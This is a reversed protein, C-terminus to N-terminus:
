MLGLLKVNPKEEAVSALYAVLKNIWELNEYASAASTLFILGRCADFTNCNLAGSGTLLIADYKDVSDPYEMKHVVDFDDVTYEVSPDPLSKRLLERFITRYDGDQAVVKPHPTDCLFLAIAKTM